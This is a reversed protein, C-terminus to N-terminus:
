PHAGIGHDASSTPVSSRRTAASSAWPAAHHADPRSGDRAGRRLCAGGRGLEHEVMLMTLGDDRLRRLHVEVVERLSPHVGAMPEDLLLIRPSAMMARMIEVLRRQGGSLQGALTDAKESLGFEELLVAADELLEIQRRRSHRHGLLAGGFSDGPQGPAGALLNELVTLHAFESTHQFTRVLGLRPVRHAPWGAIDVGDLIVHGSTPPIAGAILKLATSKGAGNPGILGTATGPVLEFSISDVAQVGGFDRHLNSVTLAAGRITKIAVAPAVSQDSGVRVTEAPPSTVAPVPQEGARHAKELLTTLRRRREPFVGQPRWWLFLLILVGISAAQASEEFNASGVTPLFTPCSWSSM